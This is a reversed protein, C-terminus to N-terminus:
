SSVDIIDAGNLFRIDVESPFASGVVMPVNYVRGGM